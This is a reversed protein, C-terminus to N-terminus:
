AARLQKRLSHYHPITKRILNWFRPSHNFEKLHCLEHVILYDQLEKPLFLLRYSFSIRGKRSCSGWRTRSNRISIAQPVLNYLTSFHAVREIAIKLAEQKYKKYDVQNAVPVLQPRRLMKDQQQKIWAAKKVILTEITSLPISKAASVTVQGDRHVAIRISRMRARRRLEYIM